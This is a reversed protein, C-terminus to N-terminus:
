IYTGVCITTNGSWNGSPLCQRTRSGRLIFGEDCSFIKEHPYTTLNGFSSGNTPTVLEGCDKALPPFYHYLKLEQITIDICLM